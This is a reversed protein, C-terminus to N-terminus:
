NIFETQYIQDYIEIRDIVELGTIVKGFATHRGNLHPQPTHTIFFQSGGTDKGAHAMGIMGRDYFLDNYECPISYGPGGWGDGRPDGAQIVFGPVVRHFYIGNYFGSKVLEIFNSVTVPAKQPYLIIEFNGKSTYFRIKPSLKNQILPFDYRTLPQNAPAPNVMFNPVLRALADAAAKRIPLYPSQTERELLTKAKLDPISDLAALIALMPEVDSPAKFQDYAELLPQVFSTDKIIALKSAVITTIAPDFLELKELFLSVPTGRRNVLSELVLTLQAKEDTRTLDQLISTSEQNEIQELAKICYYNEPWKSTKLSNEIKKLSTQPRLQALHLIALGKERWSSSKDFLSTLFSVADSNNYSAITQIAVARVQENEDLCCSQVATFLQAPAFSECVQLAALRVYWSSDQFTQKLINLYDTSQISASINQLVENGRYKEAQSSKLYGIITAQAKLSFYRTMPDSDQLSEVLPNFESLSASRYLGYASRWRVPPDSTGLLLTSLSGAINHPPYGRYALIAFGIAGAQELQRHNSEIANRILLSYKDSGVKGLAEVMKSRIGLDKEHPLTSSLPEAAKISFFQGMSFAAKYRVSDNQDLLRNAVWSITSTDQIRGLSEVAKERIKSDKSNLWNIFKSGDALRQFELERIEQLTSQNSTQCSFTLILLILLYCFKQM